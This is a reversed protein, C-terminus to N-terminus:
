VAETVEVPKKVAKKLAKKVAKKPKSVKNVPPAGTDGDVRELAKAVTQQIISEAIGKTLAKKVAKAIAKIAKDEKDKKKAM